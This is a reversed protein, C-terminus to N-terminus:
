LYEWKVLYCKENAFTFTNVKSKSITVQIVKSSVLSKCFSEVAVNPEASLLSVGRSFAELIEKWVKLLENFTGEQLKALNIFRVPYTLSKLIAAFNHGIISGNQNVDNTKTIYTQLLSTLTSWLRWRVDQNQLHRTSIM